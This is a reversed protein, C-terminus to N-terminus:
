SKMLVVIPNTLNIGTVNNEEIACKLGDSIIIGGLRTFFLDLNTDFNKSLALTEVKTNGKFNLFEVENAFKQEVGPHKGIGGSSFITNEFDIVDWDQLPMYFLRYRNDMIETPSDYVITDFYKHHQLHFRKFINVVDDSVLFHGNKFNPTFSIFGTKKAKKLKKFYFKFAMDLNEVNPSIDGLIFVSEIVEFEKKSYAKSDLEVQYIGNTVGIIKPEWALDLKYYM